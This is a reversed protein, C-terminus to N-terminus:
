RRILTLSCREYPQKEGKLAFHLAEACYAMGEEDRSSTLAQRGRLWYLISLPTWGEVEQALEEAEDALQLFGEVDSRTVHIFIMNVLTALESEREELKHAIERSEGYCRL